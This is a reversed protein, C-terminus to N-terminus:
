VGRTALCFEPMEELLAVSGVGVVGRDVGDGRAVDEGSLVVRSGDGVM